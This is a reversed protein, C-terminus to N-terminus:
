SASNKKLNSKIQFGKTDFIAPFKITWIAFFLASDTSNSLLDAAAQLWRLDQLAANNHIMVRCYLAINPKSNLLNEQDKELSRCLVISSHVAEWFLM